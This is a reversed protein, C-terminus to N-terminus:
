KGHTRSQHGSFTSAACIQGATDELLKEADAVLDSLTSAGRAISFAATIGAERCEAATLLVTGAIVIVAASTPAERRIADVVKGGLSQQDFSGEGTLVLDARALAAPLGVADGVLRAGPMLEAGVLAVLSLPMGGAAGLGPQQLYEDASLGGANALVHALNSLGADLAQIDRGDAGKQPGFTAAAGRPGVLPNDVDVAVRWYANLARPHLGSADVSRIDSLGAGGPTVPDGAADLFRVGLATMMGTGGDTSASGGICLLIETAGADLLEVAITGVGYSDARRPQLPVDQVHPLGNAEAAEIVGTKGDSAVGYRATRSRGIADTTVISLPQQGWVALLSDLTGEGGDALPLEIIEADPGFVARAGRAIAAAAQQASVSGKFSDPAVVVVPPRSSCM